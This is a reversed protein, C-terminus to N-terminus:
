FAELSRGRTFAKEANGIKYQWFYWGTYPIIVIFNIIGWYKLVTPNQWAIANMVSPFLLPLCSRILLHAGLTQSRAMIYLEPKRKILPYLEAALIICLSSAFYTPTEAYVFCANWTTYLLNWSLTTFAIYDAYKSTTYKFYKKPLPITACLLFGCIANFYNNMSIDKISAEMINLFLIAYTFRIIWGKQFFAWFKGKKKEYTAIRCFSVIIIPILISFNKAWRFWGEVGGMIWLPITFLAAIWIIASLKHHRRMFEVLLLLFVVYLGMSLVYSWVPIDM